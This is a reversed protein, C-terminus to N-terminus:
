AKILNGAVAARLTRLTRGAAYRLGTLGHARRRIGADSAVPRAHSQVFSEARQLADLYPRFVHKRVPETLRAGYSTLNSDYVHDTVQRFGQFHFFVLERGDIRIRGDREDVVHRALNWPALNAGPHEIAHVGDFLSEFRDLYKQDAYRDAEVRDFCWELCRERWWELCARGRADNRFTLWGVNYRGFKAHSREAKPSFRHPTIAVSADAIEAFLVEPSTFFYLDSDLYTVAMIDPHQAFLYRPLCPSCTFYFEVLSRNARSAHLEPDFSELSELSVVKLHALGAQELFQAAEDSLALVWLTFDDCVASLSAHLALGRALYRHDFYTCFHRHTTLPRRGM